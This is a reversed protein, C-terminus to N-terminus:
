ADDLDYSRFVKIYNYSDSSEIPHMANYKSDDFKITRTSTLAIRDNININSLGSALKLRFLPGLMLIATKKGGTM